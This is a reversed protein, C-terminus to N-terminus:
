RWQKWADGRRSLWARVADQRVSLTFVFALLLVGLTVAFLGSWIEVVAGRGLVAAFALAFLTGAFVFTRIRHAIGWGVAGLCEALLLLTDLPASGTVNHRYFTFFTPTLITLLGLWWLASARDQSGRKAAVHGLLALYLGVPLLYFQLVDPSFALRDYLYLMYAALYCVFGAHAYSEGRGVVFAGAFVSGAVVLTLLALTGMDPTAASLLAVVACIGAIAASLRYLRRALRDLTASGMKDLIRAAALWAVSTWVIRWSWLPWPLDMTGLRYAAAATCLAAAMGARDADREVLSAAFFALAYAALTVSVTLSTSSPHELGITIVFAILAYAVIEATRRLPLGLPAEFSDPTLRGVAFLVAVLPLAAMSLRISDVALFRVTLIAWALTAAGGSAYGLWPKQLRVASNGLILAGFAMGGVGALAAAQRMPIASGGFLLAASGALSLSMVGFLASEASMWRAFLGYAAAFGLGMLVSTLGAQQAGHGYGAARTWLPLLALSVVVFGAALCVKGNATASVALLSGFSVAHALAPLIVSREDSGTILLSGLLASFTVALQVPPRVFSDPRSRLAWDMAAGVCSAVALAAGAGFEKAVGLPSALAEGGFGATAVVAAAFLGTWTTGAARDRRQSCAGLRSVAGAGGLGMWLRANVGSDLGYIVNFALGATLAALALRGYATGVARLGARAEEQTTREGPRTNLLSMGLAALSYVEAAIGLALWDIRTDQCVFLTASAAALTGAVSAFRVSALWQAGIGYLLAVAALVAASEHRAGLTWTMPLTAFAVALVTSVHAWLLLIPSESDAAPTSIAPRRVLALCLLAAAPILFSGGYLWLPDPALVPSPKVTQLLAYLTAIVGGMLVHLFRLDHTRRLTWGALLTSAALGALASQRVTLTGDLWFRNAAFVNFAALVIAVGCYAFAGIGGAETGGNQLGGRARMGYYYFSCALGLPLLPVCATAYASVWEWGLIQRMGAFIFVAALLALLKMWHVEIFGSLWHPRSSPVVPTGLVPPIAGIPAAPHPWDLVFDVPNAPQTLGALRRSYEEHLRDAQEPQLIQRQRWGSIQTLLYGIHAVEQAPSYPGSGLRFGCKLCLPTYISNEAGCRLCHIM